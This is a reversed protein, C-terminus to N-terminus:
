QQTAARDYDSSQITEQSSAQSPPVTQGGASDLNSKTLQSSNPTGNSWLKLLVFPNKDNSKYGIRNPAVKQLWFM